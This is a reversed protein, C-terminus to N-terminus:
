ESSCLHSATSHKRVERTSFWIEPELECNNMVRANPSQVGERAELPVVGGAGEVWM